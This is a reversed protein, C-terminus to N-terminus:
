TSFKEHRHAAVPEQRRQLGLWSAPLASKEFAHSPWGVQGEAAQACPGVRRSQAKRMFYPRHRPAQWLEIRELGELCGGPMHAERAGGLLQADGLARHAMLHLRQLHLKADLQESALPLPQND